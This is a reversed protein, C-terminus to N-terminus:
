CGDKVFCHSRVTNGQSSNLLVSNRLTVGPKDAETMLNMSDQNGSEHSLGLYHGIEHPLARAAKDRSHGAHGALAIAPDGALHVLSFSIISVVVLVLATVGLRKAIFAGM